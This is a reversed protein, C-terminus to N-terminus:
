PSMIERVVLNVKDDPLYQEKIFVLKAISIEQRNALGHSEKKDLRIATGTPIDIEKDELIFTMIGEIVYFTEALYEHYHPRKKEGPQLSILGWDITPGRIMYQVSEEPNEKVIQM